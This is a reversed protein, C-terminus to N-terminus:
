LRSVLNLTANIKIILKSLLCFTEKFMRLKGNGRSRFNRPTPARHFM